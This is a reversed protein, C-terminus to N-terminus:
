LEAIPGRSECFREEHAGAKHLMTLLLDSFPAKGKEYTLHQRHRVGCAKGGVLVLPFETATHTVTQGGGFLLQTRDLVTGDGEPTEDLRKVLRAFREVCWLTCQAQQQEVVVRTAEDKIGFGHMISHLLDNIGLSIPMDTSITKTNIEMDYGFAFNAVRSTDNVFALYILDCFLDIIAKPDKAEFDMSKIDIKPEPRKLCEEATALRREVERVSTLYQDLRRRDGAGLDRELERANGAVVDIVSRQERMRQLVAEPSAGATVPFLRNFLERPSRAQPLPLGASDYANTEGQRSAPTMLLSSVATDAGLHRAAVQDVSITQAVGAAAKTGTLWNLSVLHHGTLGRIHQLNTFVTLQDRWPALPAHASPFLTDKGTGTPYWAARSVGFPLGYIFALRSPPKMSASPTDGAMAELFPLALLVGSGKLMTRRAMAHRPLLM